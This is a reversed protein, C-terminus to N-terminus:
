TSGGNILEKFDRSFTRTTLYWKIFDRVYPRLQSVLEENTIFEEISNIRLCKRNIFAAINDCIMLPKLVALSAKYLKSLGDDRLGRLVMLIEPEHRFITMATIPAEVRRLLLGLLEEKVGLEIGFVESVVGSLYKKLLHAISAPGITYKNTLDKLARNLYNFVEKPSRMAHHHLLTSLSLILKLLYEGGPPSVVSSLDILQLLKVSDAEHGAATCRQYLSRQHKPLIKGLDHFAIALYLIPTSVEMGFLKSVHKDIYTMYDTMLEDALDKMLKLHQYMTEVCKDKLEEDCGAIFDDGLRSLDLVGKVEMM